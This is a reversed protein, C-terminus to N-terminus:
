AIVGAVRSGGQMNPDDHGSCSPHDNIMLAAVKRSHFGHVFHFIKGPATGGVDHVRVAHSGARGLIEATDEVIAGGGAYAFFDNLFACTTGTSFDRSLLEFAALALQLAAQGHEAEM